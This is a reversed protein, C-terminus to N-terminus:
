LCLLCAIRVSYRMEVIAVSESPSNLVEAM